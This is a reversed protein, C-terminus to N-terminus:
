LAVEILETRDFNLMKSNNLLAAAAVDITILELSCFISRGGRGAGGGGGKLKLHSKFCKEIVANYELHSM